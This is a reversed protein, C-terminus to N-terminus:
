MITNPFLYINEYLNFNQLFRKRYHFIRFLKSSDRGPPTSRKSSDRGPPTSRKLRRIHPLKNPSQHEDAKLPSLSKAPLQDEDSSSDPPSYVYSPPIVKPRSKKKKLIARQDSTSSSSTSAVPVSLSKVAGKNKKLPWAKGKGKIVTRGKGKGVLKKTNAPSRSNDVIDSSSFPTPKAPSIKFSKRTKSTHSNEEDDKGSRTDRSPASM